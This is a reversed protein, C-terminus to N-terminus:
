LSGIFEMGGDWKRFILKLTVKGDVDQNELYCGERLDAWLVDTYV